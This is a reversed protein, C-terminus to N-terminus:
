DLRSGNLIAAIREPSLGSRQVDSRDIQRARFREAVIAEHAVARQAPDRILEAWSSAETYRQTAVLHQAVHLAAPDYFPAEDHQSLWVAATVPDTAVWRALLQNLAAIQEDTKVEEALLEAYGRFAASRASTSSLASSNLTSRQSNLSAPGPSSPRQPNFTSLRVPDLTAPQANLAPPPPPSTRTSKLKLFLTANAAVSVALLLWPVSRRFRARRNETNADGSLSARRPTNLPNM